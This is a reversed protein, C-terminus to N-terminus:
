TNVIKSQCEQTYIQFNSQVAEATKATVGVFINLYQYISNVLYFM